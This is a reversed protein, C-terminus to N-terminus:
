LYSKRATRSLSSLVSSFIKASKGSSVNPPLHFEDSFYRIVEKDNVKRTNYFKEKRKQIDKRIKLLSLCAKIKTIALGKTIFFFLLGIEVIILFPMIKLLTKRSFLSLLCIWRNRELYFFKEKSWKMTPSGLHFIKVRPEYYSPIGQLLARWGFDLDDHYLFFIFDVGGVKKMIEASSFTCAGATFSIREFKEYRGNDIEGKGRSHGFGFINIMNGATNIINHNKLDLLKGQYIGPGNKKYSDLLVSLWNDQVITDSDLFVIFNGKVKELGITRAGIGLNEKNQILIIEPFKEKCIIQSNDSSNNDILLVEFNCDKSQFVSKLCEVITEGSNYNLIIISILTDNNTSDM